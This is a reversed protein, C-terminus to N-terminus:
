SQRPIPSRGKLRVATAVVVLTNWGLVLPPRRGPRYGRVEFGVGGTKALSIRPGLPGRNRLHCEKQLCFAKALAKKSPLSLTLRALSNNNELIGVKKTILSLSVTGSLVVTPPMDADTAAKWYNINDM